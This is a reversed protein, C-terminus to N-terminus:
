LNLHQDISGFGVSLAPISYLYVLNGLERRVAEMGDDGLATERAGTVQYARHQNIPDAGTAKLVITFGMRRVLSNLEDAAAEWRANGDQRGDHSIIVTVMQAPNM